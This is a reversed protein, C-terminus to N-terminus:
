QRTQPESCSMKKSQFAEYVQKWLKGPRGDGVAEGNLTTIPLVEKTSSSMWVEQAASLRSADLAQEVCDLSLDNILELIFDRTIGPLILNNKPATYIRGDVVVFINSASGELVKGDRIFIAEHSGADIAKQKLLINALLSTVKIDCRDWRIDELLTARLGHQYINEDILPLPKIMAFVTPQCNEPVAHDRPAVGRTVQIYVFSDDWSVNAILQQVMELWSTVGFPDVIHVENLSRQLRALHQAMRFPQRAYVPILEYISDGFIFGRDMVPIMCQDLPLFEGNLFADNM